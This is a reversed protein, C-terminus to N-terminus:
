RARRRQRFAELAAHHDDTGVAVGYANAERDLATTLDHELSAALMRKTASVAFAPRRALQTAYNGVYGNFEAPEVLRDAIGMEVAEVADVRRGSLTLEVAKGIGIRRPLFHTYGLDPALGLDLFAQSFYAEGSTIVIDAALALSFGGGAAVGNVAAILPQPLSVLSQVLTARSRLRAVAQAGTRGGMTTVDGGACFARGRGTLVVVKVAPDGAADLLHGRLRAALEDDVANLRDPRNLTLSLVGEVSLAREVSVM